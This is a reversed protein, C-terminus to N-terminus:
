NAECPGPVHSVVAVDACANCGSSYTETGGTALRACVPRYEMTCVMPRTEQCQMAGDGEDVAVKPMSGADPTSGACAGIALPLGIMLVLRYCRQAGSM